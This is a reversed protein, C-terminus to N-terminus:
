DSGMAFEKHLTSLLLEFGKIHDIIDHDAVQFIVAIMGQDHTFLYYIQHFVEEKDGDRVVLKNKTGSRVQGDIEAEVPVSQAVSVHRGESAVKKKYGDMFIKTFEDSTSVATSPFDIVYATASQKSEIDIHRAGDDNVENYTVEWNVPYEFSLGSENYSQTNLVDAPEACGFLIMPFFTMWCITKLLM